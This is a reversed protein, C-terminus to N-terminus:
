RKLFPEVQQLVNKMIMACGEYMKKVEPDETSLGFTELDAACKKLTAWLQERQKPEPVKLNDDYLDVYLQKNADVQALYVNELTVGLKDLEARLWERNLGITALPEDMINGDMIVTQPEQENPVKVGLHKPTLPHNEKRLLVSLKGNPEMVAFEVDAVRFANKSRLQELLEDSTLHVKKLNDELVKGDKILVMGKGEVWDRVRKSKLTAWELALPILMWIILATMGLMFNGELETFIFAAISGATIGVVYHFFTMQSLQKRGLLRTLLLMVALTVLSRWAVNLWEPM